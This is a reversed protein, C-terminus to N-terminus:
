GLFFPTYGLWPLGPRFHHASSLSTPFLSQVLNAPSLFNNPFHEEPSELLQVALRPQGPILVQLAGSISPVRAM